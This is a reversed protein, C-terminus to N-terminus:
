HALKSYFPRAFVVSGLTFLVGIAALAYWSLLSEFLDLGGNEPAQFVKGPYYLDIIPPICVVGSLLSGWVFWWAGQLLDNSFGFTPLLKFVPRANKIVASPRVPRQITSRRKLKREDTSLLSHQKSLVRRIADSDGTPELEVDLPTIRLPSQSTSHPASLPESAMKQAFM